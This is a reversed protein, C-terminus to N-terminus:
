ILGEILNAKQCSNSTSPGALEKENVEDAFMDFANAAPTEEKRNASNIKIKIKEFTDQYIDYYGRDIFHNAYGTLLEWAKQDEKVQEANRTSETQNSNSSDTNKKKLWRQGKKQIFYLTTKNKLM